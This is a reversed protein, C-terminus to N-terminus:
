DLNTNSINISSGLHNVKGTGVEEKDSEEVEVIVKSRRGAVNAQLLPTLMEAAPEERQEESIGSKRNRLSYSRAKPAVPTSSITAM